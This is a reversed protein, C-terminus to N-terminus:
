SFENYHRFIDLRLIDFGGKLLIQSSYKQIDSEIKFMCKAMLFGTHVQTHGFELSIKRGLGDM